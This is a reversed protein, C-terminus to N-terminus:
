LNTSIKEEEIKNIKEDAKNQPLKMKIENSYKDQGLGNNLKKQVNDSNEVSLENGKFEEKNTKIKEIKENANKEEIKKNETLVHSEEFDPLLNTIVGLIKTRGERLILVQGKTLFEPNFLFKMKTLGKDGTRLIKEKNEIQWIEISQRIIGCHIVCQYGEKITTSHHLIVVEAEFNWAAEVKLSPDILVMGKRLEERLLIEGAKTPKIALCASQGAHAIDVPVRNCHISKITVSKYNKNKDPGILAVQKLKATGTKVSGSLVIGIGPIMFNETIDYHLPKTQNTQFDIRNKLLSLFTILSPIGQSTVSSVPFIPCIRDSLISEACKVLEEQGKILMPVRNVLNSRLLKLLNDLNEKYVNEPCLDIKTFIIFFPIKLCLTIGLHEKTMKSVGMNAGIILSVYDPELGVLGFLTTKLYKEHGCLDILNVIKSSKKVVEPWYKNKNPNYRDPIVQEGKSDFGIIEQAISSTRGNEAEHPYNFVKVRASGRGDDPSGKSLVGVVTTKGSDVNGVLAIKLSFINNSDM